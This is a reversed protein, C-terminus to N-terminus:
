VQKEKSSEGISYVLGKCAHKRANMFAAIGGDKQRIDGLKKLLNSGGLSNSRNALKTPLLKQTYLFKQNDM